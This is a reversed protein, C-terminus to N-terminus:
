FFSGGDMVIVIFKYFFNIERNFRQNVIIVGIELNIVFMNYFDLYFQYRIVVNIGVDDDVVLVQVIYDGVVNNENIVFFYM